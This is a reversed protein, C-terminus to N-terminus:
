GLHSLVLMIGAWGGVVVAVGAACWVYMGFPPVFRVAAAPPKVPCCKSCHSDDM